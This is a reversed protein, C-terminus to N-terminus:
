WRRRGPRAAARLGCRSGGGALMAGAGAVLAVGRALAPMADAGVLRYLGAALIMWSFNTYGEVHEGPNFYPGRGEALAASYRFTIYADDNTYGWYSAVMVGFLVLALAAPATRQARSPMSSMPGM